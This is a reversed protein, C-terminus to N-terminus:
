RNSFIGVFKNSIHDLCDYSLHYRVNTEHDSGFFCFLIFVFDYVFLFVAFLFVGRFFCFVLCVSM